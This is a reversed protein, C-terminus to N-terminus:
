RTISNATLSHHNFLAFYKSGCSTSLQDFRRSCSSCGDASRNCSTSRNWSRKSVTHWSFHFHRLTCPSTPLIVGDVRRASNLSAVGRRHRHPSGEREGGWDLKGGRARAKPWVCSRNADCIRMTPNPIGRESCWALALFFVNGNCRSTTLTANCHMADVAAAQYCTGGSLVTLFFLLPGFNIKLGAFIVTAKVAHWRWVAGDSGYTSQRSSVLLRSRRRCVLSRYRSTAALSCCDGRSWIRM